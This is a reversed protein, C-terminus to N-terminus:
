KKRFRDPSVDKHKLGTKEFHESPKGETLLDALLRGVGPSTMIGTGGQGVCWFFSHDDSDSGIVM